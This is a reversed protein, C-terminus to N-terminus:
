YKYQLEIKYAQFAILTVANSLTVSTARVISDKAPQRKNEEVQGVGEADRMASDTMPPM